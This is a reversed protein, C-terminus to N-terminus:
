VTYEFNAFNVSYIKNWVTGYQEHFLISCYPVSNWVQEMLLISFLTWVTKEFLISVTQSFLMTGWHVKVSFFSFIFNNFNSVDNAREM